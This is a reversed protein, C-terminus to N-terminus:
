LIQIVKVKVSNQFQGLEAGDPVLMLEAGSDARPWVAGKKKKPSCSREARPRGGPGAPSCPAAASHAGGSGRLVFRVGLCGRGAFQPISLRFM